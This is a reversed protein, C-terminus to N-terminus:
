PQAVDDSEAETQDSVENKPEPQAVNNKEKNKEAIPNPKAKLDVKVEGLEPAPSYQFQVTAGFSDATDKGAHGAVSLNLKTLAPMGDIIKTVINRLQGYAGEVGLKQAKVSGIENNRNQVALYAQEQTAKKIEFKFSM